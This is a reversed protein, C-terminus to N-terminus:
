FRIARIFFAAPLLAILYVMADTGTVPLVTRGTQAGRVEDSTVRPRETLEKTSGQPFINQTIQLQGLTKGAVKYQYRTVLGTAEDVPMIVYRATYSQGRNIMPIAWSIKQGDQVAGPVNSFQYKLEVPLVVELVGVDLDVDSNNQITIIEEAVRSVEKPTSPQGVLGIKLEQAAANGVVALLLLLSLIFSKRM